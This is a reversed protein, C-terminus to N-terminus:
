PAARACLGPSGYKPDTTFDNEATLPDLGPVCAYPPACAQDAYCSVYDICYGSPGGMGAPANV